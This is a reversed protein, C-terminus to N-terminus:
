LLHAALAVQVSVVHKVASYQLSDHYGANFPADSDIPTCVYARRTLPAVSIEVAM